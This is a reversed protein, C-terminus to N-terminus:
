LLEAITTPLAILSTGTDVIAGTDDFEAVDKGFAISSLEVEWYAKRRLPLKTIKGTFEFKGKDKYAPDIATISDRGVEFPELVREAVGGGPDFIVAGRHHFFKPIAAGVVSLELDRVFVAVDLAEGQAEVIGLRM